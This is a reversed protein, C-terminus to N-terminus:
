SRALYEGLPGWYYQKWGKTVGEFDHDPVNVHVLDIRGRKGDQVFSLILISDMDSKKWHNGRWRQVVLKGPVTLLTSGSLMGDFASFKAGAKAGIVVKGGTFAGHQKSSVYIDYLKKATAPFHVSQEITKSM